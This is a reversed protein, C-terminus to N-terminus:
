IPSLKKPSNTKWLVTLDAYCSLCINLDKSFDQSNHEISITTLAKRGCTPCTRRQDGVGDPSFASITTMSACLRDHYNSAIEKIDVLVLEEKVGVLLDLADVLVKNNPHDNRIAEQLYFISKRLNTFKM